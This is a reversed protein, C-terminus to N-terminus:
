VVDFSKGSYPYDDINVEMLLAATLKVIDGRLIKGAYITAAVM